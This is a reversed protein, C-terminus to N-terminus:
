NERRQGRGRCHAGKATRAHRAGAQLCFKKLLLAVITFAILQSIFLQWTVGFNDAIGSVLGGSESAALTIFQTM